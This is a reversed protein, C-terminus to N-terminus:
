TRGYRPSSMLDNTNSQVRDALLASPQYQMQVHLDRFHQYIKVNKHVYPFFHFNAQEFVGDRDAHGQQIDARVYVVKAIRSGGFISAIYKNWVKFLM